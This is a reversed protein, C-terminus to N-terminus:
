DTDFERDGHHLRRTDINLDSHCLLVRRFVVIFVPFQGTGAPSQQWTSAASSLVSLSNNAERSWPPSQLQFVGLGHPFTVSAPRHGGSFPAGSRTPPVSESLINDQRLRLWLAWRQERKRKVKGAKQKQERSVTVPSRLVSPSDGIDLGPSSCGKQWDFWSRLM